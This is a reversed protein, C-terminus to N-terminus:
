ALVTIKNSLAVTVIDCVWLIAFGGCIWIVILILLKVLDIKGELLKFLRYIISTFAGLFLVLIFKLIHPIGDFLKTM